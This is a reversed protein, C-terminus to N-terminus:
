TFFYRFKCRVASFFNKKRKENLQIKKEVDVTYLYFIFYEPEHGHKHRTLLAFRCASLMTIVRQKNMQRHRRVREENRRRRDCAHGTPIRWRPLTWPQGTENNWRVFLENRTVIYRIPTKYADGVRVACRHVDLCAAGLREQGTRARVWTVHM